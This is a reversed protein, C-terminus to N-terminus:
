VIPNERLECQISPIHVCFLFTNMGYETGFIVRVTSLGWHHGGSGGRVLFACVMAGLLGAGLFFLGLNGGVIVL